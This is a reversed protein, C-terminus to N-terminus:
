EKRVGWIRRAADRLQGQWNLIEEHSVGMERALDEASEGSEIRVVAEWKEKASFEKPGATEEPGGPVAEIDTSEGAAADGAELSEGRAVAAVIGELKEVLPVNEEFGVSSYRIIGLTDIVFLVPLKSVGYRLATKKYPDLLVPLSIEHKKVFPAVVGVGEKDVSVCIVKIKNDAHKKQFAALQPMEKLCPVCYTAWFNLIVTYREKNLYPKSLKEGCWESLSIRSNRGELNQLSFSPAETGPPLLQAPEQTDAAMAASFFAACFFLRFKM